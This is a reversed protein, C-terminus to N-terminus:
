ERRYEGPRQQFPASTPALRNVFMDEELEKGHNSFMKRLRIGGPILAHLTRNGEGANCEGGPQEGKIGPIPGYGHFDPWKTPDLIQRPGGVYGGNGSPSSMSPEQVM